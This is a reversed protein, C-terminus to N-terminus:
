TRWFILGVSVRPASGELDDMGRVFRSFARTNLRNRSLKCLNCIALFRETTQPTNATSPMAPVRMFMPSKHHQFVGKIAVGRVTAVKQRPCHPNARSQALAKLAFECYNAAMRSLRSLAM